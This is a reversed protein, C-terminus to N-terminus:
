HASILPQHGTGRLGRLFEPVEMRKRGEQQVEHLLLWGDGCAIKLYTKMDTVVTGPSATSGYETGSRYIKILFSQKGIKMDTFAGPTPSLGRVLDNVERAPKGWDIRGTERSLKPAHTIMSDDQKKFELAAGTRDSNDILKVTELLLEAGKTMLKDHLEGATLDPTIAVSEQLLLDGSDIEHRLRFTTVGTQNEGTIIAWNIPAAGRYRPLLSAHVNYTGLRPMSWVIEPLMRFAVVVQLDARLARLAEVFEPDKLNLPQLVEIGRGIAFQKVPSAAVKQGRGAPKDPATVVAVPAYGNDALVRLSEVAFQPTGMFVIRM